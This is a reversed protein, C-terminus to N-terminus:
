VQFRADLAIKIVELVVQTAKKAVAILSILGILANPRYAPIM